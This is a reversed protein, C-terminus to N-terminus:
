RLCGRAVLADLQQRERPPERVRKGPKSTREEAAKHLAGSVIARASVGARWDAPSWALDDQTAESNASSPSWSCLAGRQKTIGQPGPGAEGLPDGAGTKQPM